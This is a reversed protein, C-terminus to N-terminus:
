QAAYVQRLYPFLHLIESDLRNTKRSNCIWHTCRTNRRTHHGHRTIPVVHDLSPRREIAGPSRDTPDGCLGCVWGDREFIERDTFREAHVSKRVLRRRRKNERNKERCFEPHAAFWARMQARHQVRTCPECRKRNPGKRRLVTEGNCDLCIGSAVIPSVVREYRARAWDRYNIVRCKACFRPVRGRAPAPHTTRCIECVFTVGARASPVGARRAAQDFCGKKRKCPECRQPPLGSSLKPFDQECDGCRFTPPPESAAREAALEANKDRRRKADLMRRRDAACAPCREKQAGQKGHHPIDGQCDLCHRPEADPKRESHYAAQYTKKHAGRCPKCRLSYRGGGTVPPLETGCGLCARTNGETM